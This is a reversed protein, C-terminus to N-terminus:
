TLSEIARETTPYLTFCEPLGSNQFDGLFEVDLRSAACLGGQSEVVECLQILEPTLLSPWRRIRDFDLVVAPYDQNEIRESLQRRLSAFEEAAAQDDVVPVPVVFPEVKQGATAFRPRRWASRSSSADYEEQDGLDADPSQDDISVEADSDGTRLRSATALSLAVSSDLPEVDDLGFEDFDADTGPEHVVLTGTDLDDIVDAPDELEEDFANDFGVAWSPPADADPAEEDRAPGALDDFVDDSRASAPPTQEDDDVSKTQPQSRNSEPLRPADLPQPTPTEDFSEDLSFVEAPPQEDAKGDELVISADPRALPGRRDKGTPKPVVQFTYAGCELVDGVDLVAGTPDVPEGNILVTGLFPVLRVRYRGDFRLCFLQDQENVDLRVHCVNSGGVWAGLTVLFKDIKVLQQDSHLQM